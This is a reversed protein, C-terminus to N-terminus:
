QNCQQIQFQRQPLGLPATILVVLPLVAPLLTLAVAAVAAAAPVVLVLVAVAVAVTHASAPQVTSTTPSPHPLCSTDPRLNRKPVKGFHHLVQEKKGDPIPIYPPPM